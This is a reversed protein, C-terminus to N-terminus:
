TVLEADLEDFEQEIQRRMARREDPEMWSGELATLRLQRVRTADWGAASVM